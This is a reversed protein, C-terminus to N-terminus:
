KDEKKGTQLAIKLREELEDRTFTKLFLHIKKRYDDRSKWDTQTTVPLGFVEFLDTNTTKSWKSMQLSGLILNGSKLSVM